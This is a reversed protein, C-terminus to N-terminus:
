STVIAKMTITLLQGVPHAACMYQESKHRHNTPADSEIVEFTSDNYLRDLKYILVTTNKKQWLDRPSEVNENRHPVNYAIGKDKNQM